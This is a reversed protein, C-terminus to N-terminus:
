PKSSKPSVTNTGPRHVSESARLIVGDRVILDDETGMLKDAGPLRLDYNTFSLGEGPLDDTTDLSANRIVAGRLTRSKGKPLAALDVSPKYTSYASAELVSLAAAISGDPDPLRRLDVLEAPLTRYRLSYQFLARDYTRGVLDAAAQLGDQRQRLREPVTVGILVAILVPVLVSAMLGTRAYRLGCFRAPSKLISRYIKLSAWLVVITVPMAVWKLRWAATEGAAVWSWFDSPFVSALTMVSTVRPARQVAASITQIVFVLVMLTGTVALLLSRGYAPLEREPRPLAEGVSYAGCSTCGQSLTGEFKFGCCPCITM